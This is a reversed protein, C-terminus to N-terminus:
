AMIRSFSRAREGRELIKFKLNTILVGPYPNQCSYTPFQHPRLIGDGSIIKIVVVQILLGETKEGEKEKIYESEYYARLIIM